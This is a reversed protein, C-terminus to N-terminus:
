DGLLRALMAQLLAQAEVVSLGQQDRLRQWSEISLILDLSELFQRDEALAPPLIAVLLDRSIRTMRRHQAALAPSRYRYIDMATKFPAIAEFAEVRRGVIEWLVAPWQRTELPQEVYPAMRAFVLNALELNLNEMDDFHRFVTRLSVGAKVAIAEATPSPQGLEILDVTASLIRRRSDASRERRGDPRVADEEQPDHQSIKNNLINMTQKDVKDHEPGPGM